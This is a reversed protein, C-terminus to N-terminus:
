EVVVRLSSLADAALREAESREDAVAYLYLLRNIYVAPELVDGISFPRLVVVAKIGPQQSLQELGEIGVIRGPEHM